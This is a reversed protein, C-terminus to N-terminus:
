KIGKSLLKKGSDPIILKKLNGEGTWCKKFLIIMKKWVAIESCPAAIGM